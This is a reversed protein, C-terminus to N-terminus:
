GEKPTVWAQPLLTVTNKPFLIDGKSDCTVVAAAAYTLNQCICAAAMCLGMQMLWVVVVM